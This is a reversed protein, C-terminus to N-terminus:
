LCLVCSIAIASPVGAVVDTSAEQEAERTQPQGVGAARQLLGPRHNGSALLVSDIPYVLVHGLAIGEASLLKATPGGDLSVSAGDTGTAVSLPALLITRLPRAGDLDELVVHGRVIHNAVLQASVHKPDPVPMHCPHVSEASRAHLRQHVTSSECISARLLASTCALQKVMFPGTEHVVAGRAPSIVAATVAVLAAWVESRSSESSLLGQSASESFADFAADTPAFLTLQWAAQSDGLLKGPWTSKLLSNLQGYACCEDAASGSPAPPVQM